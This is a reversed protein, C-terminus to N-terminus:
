IARHIILRGEGNKGFYKYVSFAGYITIRRIFLFNRTIKAGPVNRKPRENSFCYMSSFGVFGPLSSMDNLARILFIGCGLIHVSVVCYSLM